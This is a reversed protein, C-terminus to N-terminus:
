KSVVGITKIKAKQHIENQSMIIISSRFREIISRVYPRITPSTLLVPIEGKAAQQDYTSKIRNVFEQLESPPLSLQKDNQQTTLHELMTQEWEESLSVVPIFGESNTNANSIQRALRMRTNETIETINSTEKTIDSIAEVITPLDRISVSESLLNQLVKQLLSISVQEPVIEKVFKKNEEPLEEILKQTEIYSLLEPINDKIVETLHTTIVTSPDVVTYQKNIAVERSSQDIWKAKLGFAPETTEEGEIDINEGAPDMVLLKSVKVEGRASEIEKIKIVYEDSGLELNDQVRTSPIIFGLERAIQKRLAKVQDTLRHGENYNILPLLGYGLEIRVQDMYLISSIDEQSTQEGSSQSVTVGESESSQQSAAESDQGQSSKSIDSGSSESNDDAIKLSYGLSACAFSLVMFPLAPLGPMLAMLATLLSAVWISKPNNGIQGFIVKHTAGVVGSKSVLLGASLSIILSPVQSVLGDGITLMSYTHMADSFNLNRQGMGILIGGIFNVLTILLGAIADGRVFKNAGDMAGYFTSEDELEQRRKKATQEDIVGASLDADIAMQKGPMSDLSFRAAVEAIRGSGKTIVVFNIITLIAFVIIGIIVNGQMVFGGFAQIVYGAANSGKHGDALILRTSAINLSLRTIATVLLLTPFASLELPEKIFLTTMLILVATTMSFALLIDMIFTPVPILLVLLIGIVGFALVIDGNRLILNAIPKLINGSGSNTDAEAM